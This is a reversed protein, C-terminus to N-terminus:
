GQPLQSWKLAATHNTQWLEMLQGWVDPLRGFLDGHGDQPFEWLRKPGNFGDYLRIGLKEPVVRDAGGVLVGLPGHYNRLYVESPYRDVLLLRVPLWPFHYQAADTLRTFPAILVVGAVMNSHTGALYSAVGTGLSEGVLYVPKNTDLLQIAEDAARFLNKQTPKGPRDEYGPYELIFVDFAALKQIDNAYHACSVASSGNGYVVLIQGESPQRPSPRKMGIPEGSFNRWRQIKASQAMDDVQESTYIAPYYILNRQFSACGICAVAYLTLCILFMRRLFSYVKATFLRIDTNM